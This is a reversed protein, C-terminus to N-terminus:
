PLPVTRLDIPGEDATRVLMLASSENMRDLQVVGDIGEITEYELGAIDDIKETIAEINDINDTTIKMLGRSSNSMLIYDKGDKEYIVMDLPRNRNGLEAITICVIKEGPELVSIPIKVLPTCTYAALLYPEAAIDFTAFTRIPSRTEFRGHQGHFIEISTGSAAQQFPYPIARLQSAFEENSLGAVYVKGDLYAVDTISELRLNRRRRGRGSIGDAPPNPLTVKSFSVDQLGYEQIAGNGDLTLILPVADPGRGRSVALYVRGSNPNVVMDNILVDNATTGLLEAIKTDLAPVHVEAGAASGTNDGTDIAFLAAGRPDSVFLVGDPGFALPGISKLDPAGRRLESPAAMASSVMCSSVIFGNVLATFLAFCTVHLTVRM